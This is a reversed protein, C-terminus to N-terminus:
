FKFITQSLLFHNLPGVIIYKISAHKAFVNQPKWNVVVPQVEKSKELSIEATTAAKGEFTFVLFM